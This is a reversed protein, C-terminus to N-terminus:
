CQHWHPMHERPGGGRLIGIQINYPWTVTFPDSPCEPAPEPEPVHTDCVRSVFVWIRTMMMEQDVDVLRQVQILFNRVIFLVKVEASALGLGTDLQGGAWMRKLKYQAVRVV